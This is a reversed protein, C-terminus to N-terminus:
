APQCTPCYQTCVGCNMCSTGLERWMPHDFSAYLAKPDPLGTWWAPKPGPRPEAVPVATGGEVTALFAQGRPSGAQAVFGGAEPTLM